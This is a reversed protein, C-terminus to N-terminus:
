RADVLFRGFIIYLGVLVFLLGFLLPFIMAVLSFDDGERAPSFVIFIAIIEWIIAFFGWLLSFPVM